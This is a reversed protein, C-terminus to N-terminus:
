AAPAIDRMRPGIGNSRILNEPSRFLNDLQRGAEIGPLVGAIDGAIFGLAGSAVDRIADRVGYEEWENQAQEEQEETVPEPPPLVEDVAQEEDLLGPEDVLMPVGKRLKIFTKQTKDIGQQSQRLLYMREDATLKKGFLDRYFVQGPTVVSYETRTTMAPSDRNFGAPRQVITNSEKYEHPYGKEFGGGMRSNTLGSKIMHTINM